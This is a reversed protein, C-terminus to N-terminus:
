HHYASSQMSLQLDATQLVDFIIRGVEQLYEASRNISILFWFIIRGVEQLYEATSNISIM